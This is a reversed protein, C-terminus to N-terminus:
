KGGLIDTGLFMIFAKGSGFSLTKRSGEEGNWVGVKSGGQPWTFASNCIASPVCMSVAGLREPSPRRANDM